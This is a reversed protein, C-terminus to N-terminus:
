KKLNNWSTLSEHIDPNRLTLKMLITHTIKLLIRIGLFIFVFSLYLLFSKPLFSPRTPLLSPVCQLPRPNSDQSTWSSPYPIMAMGTDIGM